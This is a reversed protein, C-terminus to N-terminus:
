YEALQALHVRDRAMEALVPYKIKHVRWWSLIDFETGPLLKPTEVAEKLYVELEDRTDEGKEAVLEKYVADMREYGFDDVVLEMRESAQEQSEPVPVSSAQTSQAPQGSSERFRLNYEKFMSQLLDIVSGLMKKAEYSDKGYLKEFCLKAFHMKNRPDFVTALILMKNLGKIGEWYKLFKKLMDSATLKLESDLSNALGILNRETTVIEGYCKYTNVKSSASVILTSNYFIVLFRILKEVGSWDSAAPPGCRKVGNEVELFYDNYLRDETEMKDFAVKFQLARSLMLFISNCRTKVDLPLSGRTMKGTTVRQDFANVRSTFSRIYQVANRIALVNDGLDRLGEKAILNIIHAACRMHLYNGDLVLADPSISSFVSHFRGLASTNATANDVTICFLKEIGWDELCNLLVNAITQGKHDIIYKFGIILKKLQWSEDFFHATIVMYSAGTVQATWIDTTLSVRQKSTCLLNKLAAKKKVFMEVINRTATRKSHPKWLNVKNCFHKFSTSEILSLPLEQQCWWSM